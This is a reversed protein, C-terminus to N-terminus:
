TWRSFDREDRALTRDHWYAARPNYNRCLVEAVPKAKAAEKRAAKRDLDDMEERLITRDTGSLTKILAYEAPGFGADEYICALEWVLDNSDSIDACSVNSTSM